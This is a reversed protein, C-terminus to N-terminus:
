RTEEFLELLRAAAERCQAETVDLHTTLRLTRPGFQSVLVNRERAKALFAAADLPGERLRFIVINTQVTFLDLDIGRAHSLV